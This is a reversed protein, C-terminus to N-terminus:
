DKQYTLYFSIPVATSISPLGALEQLKLLGSLLGFNEADLFILEHPLVMVRDKALRVVRLESEIARETGHLSLTFTTDIVLSEGPALKEFEALDITGRLTALPFRDTQWLYKRIRDNRIDIWTEVSSLDITLTITGNTSIRSDINTFHNVEGITNKKISGFSLHSNEAELVWDARALSATLVVFLLCFIFFLPFKQM